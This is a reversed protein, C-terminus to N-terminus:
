CRHRCASLRSPERWPMSRGCSGRASHTRRGSVGGAVSGERRADPRCAVGLGYPVASTSPRSGGSVPRRNRGRHPEVGDRGRARGRVLAGGGVRAHLLSIERDDLGTEEKEAKEIFWTRQSLGVTKMRVRSSMACPTRLRGARWRHESPGLVPAGQAERLEDCCRRACLPV